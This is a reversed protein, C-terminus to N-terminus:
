VDGANNDDKNRITSTDSYYNNGPVKNATLNQHQDALAQSLINFDMVVSKVLQEIDNYGVLRPLEKIEDCVTKVSNQISALDVNAGEALTANAVAISNKIARLSQRITEKSM